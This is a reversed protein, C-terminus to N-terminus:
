ISWSQVISLGVTSNGPGIEGAWGNESRLDPRSSGLEGRSRTKARALEDGRYLLRRMTSTYRQRHKKPCACISWSQVISLGAPVGGARHGARAEGLQAAHAAPAKCDRGLRNDALRLIPGSPACVTWVYRNIATAPTARRPIEIVFGIPSWPGVLRELVACVSLSCWGRVESLNHNREADGILGRAHRASACASASRAGM